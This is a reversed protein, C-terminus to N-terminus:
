KRALRVLVSGAKTVLLVDVEEPLFAREVEEAGEWETWERELKRLDVSDAAGSLHFSYLEEIAEATFPTYVGNTENFAARFEELSNIKINM